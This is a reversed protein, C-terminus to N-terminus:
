GIMIDEEPYLYRPPEPNIIAMAIVLPGLRGFFMMCILIIKGMTSIGATIGTSLGVTGFASVVEFLLELFKGRSQPHAINGLETNLILILGICIIVLCILMISAARGISKHSISRDFLQTQEHGRFRTIGLLALTSFTTTKIGGGCSGPSAGIFMLIILIFLTENAMNGTPLTNFGSTRTNVVQFFACLIRNPISLGKLTNYQETCLFLVVGTTLLFATTSLVLKSHLSLRKLPKKRISFNEKLESLVPFGIGGMIVLGCITLNVIWNFRYGSFSQPFLSFGANCFASVSHFVSLYLATAPSTDHLFNFFLIVAGGTELVVTFFFINKLIVSLNERSSLSFSEQIVNHDTFSPRRGSLLLFLTSVTMIGLGGIQILMLIIFQGFSTFSRSTDVVTLGTVCVASTSTFLADITNINNTNSSQPLILLCTGLIILSAFGIILARSPSQTIIRFIWM